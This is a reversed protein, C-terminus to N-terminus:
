HAHNPQASEGTREQFAGFAGGSWKEVSLMPLDCGVCGAIGFAPAALDAAWRARGTLGRDYNEFFVRERTPATVLAWIVAM